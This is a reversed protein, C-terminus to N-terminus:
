AQSLPLIRSLYASHVGMCQQALAGFRQWQRRSLADALVNQDGAIHHIHLRVHHQVCWGFLAQVMPRASPPRPGGKSLWAVTASNDCLVVVRSRRWCCGFLHCAALVAYCEWHNIDADASPVLPCGLSVFDPGTCSAFAGDTFIGVCPTPSLCADTYVYHTRLKPALQLAGNCAVAHELWWQLDSRVLASITVHHGPHLVTSLLDSCSRMFVRGGYVVRSAWQMRGVLQQMVKRRVTHRAAVATVLSLLTAMKDAPLSLTMRASNVVVGLFTQVQSPLVTKTPKMNISFGLDGLLAVAVALSALCYERQAHFLLYDDMVGVLAAVGNAHLIRKIGMTFRHALEPALRLGFQLRSDVFWSGGFEFGQLGWQSPHVMFHRYYAEIDLRAMFVRPTLFRM